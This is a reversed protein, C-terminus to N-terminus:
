KIESIEKLKEFTKNGFNKIKEGKENTSKKLNTWNLERNSSRWYEVAKWAAEAPQNRVGAEVLADYIESKSASLLNIKNPQIAGKLESIESKLYELFQNIAARENANSTVLQLLTKITDEIKQLETEVLLKLSDIQIKINMLEPMMSPLNAKDETGPSITTSANLNSLVKLQTQVAESNDKEKIFVRIRDPLESHLERAKLYALYDFHGDILRYSDIGIREVVPIKLLGGLKVISRAFYELDTKKAEIDFPLQHPTVEELSDLDIQFTRLEM